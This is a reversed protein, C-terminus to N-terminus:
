LVKATGAAPAGSNWAAVAFRLGHVSTFTFVLFGSRPGSSMMEPSSSWVTGHAIAFADYLRCRRVLAHGLDDLHRSAAVRERDVVPPPFHAVGRQGEDLAEHLGSRGPRARQTRGRRIVRTPSWSVDIAGARPKRRAPTGSAKSM